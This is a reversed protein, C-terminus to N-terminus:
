SPNSNRGAFNQYSAVLCGIQKDGYQFDLLSTCNRPQFGRVNPYHDEEDTLARPGGECIGVHMTGMGSNRTREKKSPIPDLESGRLVLTRDM